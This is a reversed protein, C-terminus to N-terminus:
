GAAARPPLPVRWEMLTGVGGPRPTVRCSGGLADARKAMDRLGQGPGQAADDALGVGDDAVRVVLDSGAFVGVDVSEARAHRAVNSLAERLVALVHNSTDCDVTSDTPGEFHVRPWFGLHDTAEDALSLVASRTGGESVGAGADAGAGCSLAWDSEIDAITDRIDSIVADLQASIYQLKDATAVAATPLLANLHMGLGFARQVVTDLLERAAEERARAERVAGAELRLRVLDTVDEAAHLVHSVDGDPAFVPAHFVVWFRREVDGGAARPRPLDYADMPLFDSRAGSLVRRVSDGLKDVSHAHDDGHEQFLSLISRGVVDERAAGRADLYGDSAAVVVLAPDIVLYRGRASEFLARYDLSPAPATAVGVAEGADQSVRV